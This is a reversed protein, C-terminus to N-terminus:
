HPHESTRLGRTDNLRECRPCQMLLDELDACPVMTALIFGCEGCLLDPALPDSGVFYPELTGNPAFFSRNGLEAFEITQLRIKNVKM